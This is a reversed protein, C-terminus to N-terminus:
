TIINQNKDAIFSKSDIKPPSITASHNIKIDHHTNTRNKKVDPVNDVTSAAQQMVKSGSVPEHQLLHAAHKETMRGRSTRLFKKRISFASNHQKSHNKKKDKDAGFASVIRILMRALVLLPNNSVSNVTHKSGSHEAKAQKEDKSKQKHPPKKQIKTKKRNHLTNNAAKSSIHHSAGLKLDQIQPM